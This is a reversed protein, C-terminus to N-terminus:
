KKGYAMELSIIILYLIPWSYAAIGQTQFQVDYSAYCFAGLVILGLGTWSRMSPYERGLFIADLLSVVCPSLARFVIITEVNRSRFILLFMLPIQSVFRM